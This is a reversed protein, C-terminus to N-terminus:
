KGLAIHVPEPKGFSYDFAGDVDSMIVEDPSLGHAKVRGRTPIPTTPVTTPPASSRPETPHPMPELSVDHQSHYHHHKLAVKPLASEQSQRKKLSQYLWDFCDI